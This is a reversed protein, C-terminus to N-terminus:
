GRRRTRGWAALGFLGVAGLMWVSPEPIATAAIGLPNSVGQGFNSDIPLYDAPTIIGDFDGDGLLWGGSLGPTPTGLNSDVVIYDSGDVKGDLNYDGPYTFRVIIQNFGTGLTSNGLTLDYFPNGVDGFQSNNNDVPILIRSGGSNEVTSSGIVPVNNGPASGFSYFNDVYQTITALPNPDGVNDSHYLILDNDNLDLYSENGLSMGPTGSGGNLLTNNILILGNAGGDVARANLRTFTTANGASLTLRQQRLGDVTLSKQGTISTSGVATGAGAGPGAVHGVVQDGNTVSLTSTAASTTINAKNGATSGLASVAGGLTLTSGGAVTAAVGTGVTSTSGTPLAFSLGGGGVTIATNNGLNLSTNVSPSGTGATSIVPNTGALSLVNAAPGALVYGVSSNFTLKNVTQSANLNANAGGMGLFSAEATNSNPVPGAWSGAVTWNAGSAGVWQNVVMAGSMRFDGVKTGVVGQIGYSITLDSLLFSETLGTGLIDGVNYGNSILFTHGLATNSAFGQQAATNVVFGVGPNPGGTGNLWNAQNLAFSGSASQISLSKYQETVPGEVSVVGTAADYILTLINDGLTGPTTAYSTGSENTQAFADAFNVAGDQNIDGDAWAAGSTTGYNGNLVFADQFDVDGDLDLDGPRTDAILATGACLSFAVTAASQFFLRAFRQIRVPM